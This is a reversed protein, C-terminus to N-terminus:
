VIMGDSSTDNLTPTITENLVTFLIFTSNSISIYCTGYNDYDEGFLIPKEVLNVSAHGMVSITLIVM